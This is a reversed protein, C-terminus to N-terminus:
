MPIASILSPKKVGDRILQVGSDSAVVLDDTQGTSYSPDSATGPLDFTIDKPKTAAAIARRSMKKRQSPKLANRYRVHLRGDILYSFHTCDISVTIACQGRYCTDFNAGALVVACMTDAYDASDTKGSFPAPAFDSDTESSCAGLALASAAVAIRINTTKM